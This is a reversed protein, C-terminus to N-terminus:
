PVSRSGSIKDESRRDGVNDRTNDELKITKHKAKMDTVWASIGKTVTTHNADLGTTKFLLM